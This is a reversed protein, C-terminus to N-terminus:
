PHPATVAPASPTRCPKNASSPVRPLALVYFLPPANVGGLKVSAGDEKRRQRHGTAIAVELPDETKTYRKLREVVETLVKNRTENRRRTANLRKAEAPSLRMNPM